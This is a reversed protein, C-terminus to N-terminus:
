RPDDIPSVQEMRSTHLYALRGIAVAADIDVGTPLPACNSANELIYESVSGFQQPFELCGFVLKENSYDDLGLGM